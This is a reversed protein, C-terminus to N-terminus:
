SARGPLRPQRPKHAVISFLNHHLLYVVNEAEDRIPHGHYVPLEGQARYTPHLATVLGSYQRSGVDLSAKAVAAGNDLAVDILDPSLRRRSLNPPIYVGLANQCYTSQIRWNAGRRHERWTWTTLVTGPMVEAVRRLLTLHSVLYNDYLRHYDAISTLPYAAVDAALEDAPMLLEAAAFDCLAEVWPHSEEAHLDALYGRDLGLKEYLLIHAIEHAETFRVRRWSLDPRRFITWGTRRAHLRGHAGSGAPANARTASLVELMPTLAYPRSVQGARVRLDACAARMAAAPDAVDWGAAFAALSVPLQLSRRQSPSLGPRSASPPAIRPRSSRSPTTFRGQNAWGAGSRAAAEGFPLPLQADNAMLGDNM